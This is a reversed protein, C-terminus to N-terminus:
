AKIEHLSCSISHAKSSISLLAKLADISRAEISVNKIQPDAAFVSIRRIRWLGLRSNDSIQNKPTLNIVFNPTEKFM